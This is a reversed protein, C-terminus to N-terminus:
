WRNRATHKRNRSLPFNADIETTSAHCTTVNIRSLRRALHADIDGHISRLKNKVSTSFCITGLVRVNICGHVFNNSITELMKVLKPLLSAVELFKESNRWPRCIPIETSTIVLPQPPPVPIRGFIFIKARPGGRRLNGSTRHFSFPAAEIRSLICRRSFM